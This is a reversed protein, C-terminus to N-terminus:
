AVDGKLAAHANHHAATHTNEAGRRDSLVIALRDAYAKWYAAEARARRAEHSYRRLLTILAPRALGDLNVDQGTITTLHNARSPRDSPVTPGATAANM